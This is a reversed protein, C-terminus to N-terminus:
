QIKKKKIRQKKQAKPKALAKEAEASVKAVLEEVSSDNEIIADALEIIKGLGKNAVDREDRAFFEKEAQPDAMSKREFRTEPEAKLAILYFSDARGKLFEAEEVSRMGVAVVKEFKKAELWLRKAVCDMGEAKRLEDGVKSMNEKNVPLGRGEVEARLFDSFVLKKFGFREALVNAATDKGSRALGTLAIIIM